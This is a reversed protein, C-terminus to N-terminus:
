STGPKAWLLHVMKFMHSESRTIVMGSQRVLEPINRTHHCGIARFLLPDLMRQVTSVIANSSIGHEMLLISGEPKCWRRLKKMVRLPNEYSCFSLTSVITDFSRDPFELGEIDTLIFDADLRCGAAVERAKSLMESSFDAATVKVGGPYYPFNAGAGVALELVEGNAHNLLDRRWRRLTQGEKRRGYQAAQRDFLRIQKAKDM